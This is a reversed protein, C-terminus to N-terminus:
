FEFLDLGAMIAFQDDLQLEVTFDALTMVSFVAGISGGLKLESNSGGGVKQGVGNYIDDTSVRQLRLHLQAYPEIKKGSQLDHTYSGTISGTLSFYKGDDFRSYEIGTGLSMDFPNEGRIYEWLQYKADIGLILNVDSREPDILGGRVRGEIYEALGMRWSGVVGLADEAIILYGGGINTGKELCDASTMQGLFQGSASGAIMCVIIFFRTVRMM